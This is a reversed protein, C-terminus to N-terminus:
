NKGHEKLFGVFKLHHEEQRTLLGIARQPDCLEETIVTTLAKEILQSRVGDLNVPAAIHNQTAELEMTYAITHNVM